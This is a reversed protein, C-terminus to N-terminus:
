PNSIKEDQSVDFLTRKHEKLTEGIFEAYSDVKIGERDLWEYFKEREKSAEKLDKYRVIVLLNYNSGILNFINEVFDLKKLAEVVKKYGKIDNHIAILLVGITDLGAKQYDIKWTRREKLVIGRSELAKIRNFATKPSVGAYNAIEELTFGKAIGELIKVMRKDAHIENINAM